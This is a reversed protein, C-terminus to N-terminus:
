LSKSQLNTRPSITSFKWLSKKFGLKTSTKILLKFLSNKTTSRMGSIFGYKQSLRLM